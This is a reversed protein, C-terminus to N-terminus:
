TRKRKEKVFLVELSQMFSAPFPFSSPAPPPISLPLPLFSPVVWKSNISPSIVCDECQTLCPLYLFMEPKRGKEERKGGKIEYVREGEREREEKIEYNFAFKWVM